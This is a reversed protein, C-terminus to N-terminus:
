LSFGDDITLIQGTVACSMNSLLYIAGGAIDNPSLMGINGALNDYKQLFSEPQRERVGGPAICNLRIGNKKYLQALYITMQNIGAKVVSYELSNTMNTGEYLEFRPAIKGYISSISVISGKINKNMFYEIFKSTVQYYGGLHLNLSECFSKYDTESARKLEGRQPYASIVLGNIDENREILSNIMNNISGEDTFDLSSYRSTSSDYIEHALTKAKKENIDAILPNGGQKKIERAISGGILGGGGVVVINKGELM